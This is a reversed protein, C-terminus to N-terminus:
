YGISRLRWASGTAGGVKPESVDTCDFQQRWALRTPDPDAAWEKWVEYRAWLNGSIRFDRVLGIDPDETDLIPPTASTDLTPQFVTVPQSTQRRLWSLGETLGSRAAMVAQYNTIFLTRNHAIQ